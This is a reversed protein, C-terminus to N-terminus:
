EEAHIATQGSTKKERIRNKRRKLVGFELFIAHTCGHSSMMELSFAVM